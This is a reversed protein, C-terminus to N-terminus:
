STRPRPHPKRCSSTAASAITRSAAPRCTAHSPSSSARSVCTPKPWHMRDRVLGDADADKIRAIASKARATEVGKEIWLPAYNRGSYFAEVETRENASAFLKDAKGAFLDRINAAIPRDAPDLSALPDVPPATVDVVTIDVAPGSSSIDAASVETAAIGQVDKASVYLAPATEALQAAAQIASAHSTELWLQDSPLTTMPTGANKAVSVL